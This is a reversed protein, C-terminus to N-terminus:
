PLRGSLPETWCDAFKGLVVQEVAEAFSNSRALAEVSSSTLDRPSSFPETEADRAKTIESILKAHRQSLASYNEQLDLLQNQLDVENENARETRDPLVKGSRDKSRDSIRVQDRLFTIEARLREVLAKM